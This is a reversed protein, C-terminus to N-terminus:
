ITELRPTHGSRSNSEEWIQIASIVMRAPVAPEYCNCGANNLACPWNGGLALNMIINTPVNFPANGPFRQGYKDEAWWHSSEIRSLVTGGIIQGNIVQADLYFEMFGPQWNVGFWHPKSWDVNTPWANRGGTPYSVDKPWEGGFHLTSYGHSETAESCVTEM